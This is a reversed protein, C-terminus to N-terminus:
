MKQRVQMNELVVAFAASINNKNAGFKNSKYEAVAESYARTGATNFKWGWLKLVGDCGLSVVSRGCEGIILDKVGGNRPDHSSMRISKEPELM